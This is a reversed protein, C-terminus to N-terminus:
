LWPRMLPARRFPGAISAERIWHTSRAPDKSRGSRKVSPKTFAGCVRCHKLWAHDHICPRKLSGSDDAWVIDEVGVYKKKHGTLWCFM